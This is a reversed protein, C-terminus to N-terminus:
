LEYEQKGFMLLLWVSTVSGKTKKDVYVRIRRSHQEIVIMSMVIRGCVLVLTRHVYFIDELNM